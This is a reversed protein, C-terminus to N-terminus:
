CLRLFAFLIDNLPDFSIVFFQVSKQEGEAAVATFGNGYYGSALIVTGNGNFVAPVIDILLQSFGDDDSKEFPSGSIAKQGDTLM